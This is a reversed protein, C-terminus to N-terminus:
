KKHRRRSSRRKKNKQRRTKKPNGGKLEALIPFNKKYKANDNNKIFDIAETKKEPTGTFYGDILEKINKANFIINRMKKCYSYWEKDNDSDSRPLEEYKKYFEDFVPTTLELTPFDTIKLSGWWPKSLNQVKTMFVNCDYYLTNYTSIFSKIDEHPVSTYNQTAKIKEIIEDSSMYVIDGCM